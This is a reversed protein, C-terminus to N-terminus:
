NSSMGLFDKEDDTLLHLNSRLLAEQILIRFNQQYRPADTSAKVSKIVEMANKWLYGYTKVSNKGTNGHLVIKQCFIQIPVTDMSHKPVSTM